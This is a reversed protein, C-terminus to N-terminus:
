SAGSTRRTVAEQVDTRLLDCAMRQYDAGSEPSPDGLLRRSLIYVDSGLIRRLEQYHRWRPLDPGPLLLLPSTFNRTLASGDDTALALDRLIELEFVRVREDAILQRSRREAGNANRNARLAVVLAAAGIALSGVVGLLNWWDQAIDVTNIVTVPVPTSQMLTM